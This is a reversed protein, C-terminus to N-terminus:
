DEEEEEEEEEEEVAAPPPLFFFLFLFLFFLFFFTSHTKACIEVKRKPPVFYYAVESTNLFLFFTCRIMSFMLGIKLSKALVSGSLLQCKIKEGGFYISCAGFKL